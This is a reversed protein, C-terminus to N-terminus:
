VVSSILVLTSIDFSITVHQALKKFILHAHLHLIRLHQLTLKRSMRCGTQGAKKTRECHPGIGHFEKYLISKFSKGTFRPPTITHEFVNGKCNFYSTTIGNYHRFHHWQTNIFLSWRSDPMKPKM